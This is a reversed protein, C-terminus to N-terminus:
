VVAGALLAGNRSSRVAGASGRLDELVSFLIVADRFGKDAGEFPVRRDTAMRFLEELPM